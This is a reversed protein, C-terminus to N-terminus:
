SHVYMSCDRFMVRDEPTIEIEDGILKLRIDQLKIEELLSEQYKKVDLDVTNESEHRVIMRPEYGLKMCFRIFADLYLPMSLDVHYGEVGDVGVWYGGVDLIDLEGLKRVLVNIVTKGTM